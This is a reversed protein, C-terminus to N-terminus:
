PRIRSFSIQAFIASLITALTLILISLAPPIIFHGSLAGRMGDIGYTLPNCLALVRIFTTQGELPFVAGSLYFLPTVIFNVIQSFSQADSMISGLTSGFFAFILAILLAFLLALGIQQADPLVNGAVLCLVGVLAAQLLAVTAVGLARGVLIWIRSVPAVLTEKIFGFQRDWLLDSGSYVANFLIGAGIVGPALFAFYNGEGAKKFVPAFGLGLATLFLFPQALASIVRGRSRIFSRIQRLWLCYLVDVM